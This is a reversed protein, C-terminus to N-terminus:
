NVQKKAWSIISSTILKRFEDVFIISSAVIISVFLASGSIPVTRLLASLMPLYTAGFQLFVSILFTAILLKNSKLSMKFISQTESRSNFINFLQFFVITMLAATRAYEVGLPLYQLYVWITGITMVVTVLLMRWLTSPKLLPEHPDRPPKKMLNEEEPEVTLAMSNVGDTVLNMWLIQAALLPLPLNAVVAYMIIAIEAFSTSVLFFIVKRLNEWILRGQKVAELIASFSDQLLVMDSAEIAVDTGGRGMSIGIDARKLAPADNVGDGTMAVIHGQKQLREVIHLKQSPTARAITSIDDIRRHALDDAHVVEGYQAIGARKAISEATKIHDGTIMLVRLGAQTAVKLTNAVDGRIPDTMMFYGVFTMNKAAKISPEASSPLDIYSLAMMRYGQGAYLDATEELKTRSLRNLSKTEGGGLMIRSSLDLIKEPSGKVILRNNRGYKHVSASFRVNEDFPIEMIEPHEKELDFAYWGAKAAVVALATENPDTLQKAHDNKLDTRSVTSSTALSALELLKSASKKHRISVKKDNVFFDGSLKYGDGDVRYESSGSFIKEVMLKGETITGTKDVCVITASGLTEAASLKRILAKKRFVRMLGVSLTVTIAVPLGEPVISVLLSLTVSILETVSFNYSIGVVFLLLLFIVTIILLYKAIRNVQRELNEPREHVGAVERTIKGIESGMGTATVVAVAQGGVVLTSSYVMNARDILATNLAVTSERKSSPLSEGTLTAQNTRLNRSQLIRADAPVKDGAELMIIDGAVLHKAPIKQESGERIVKAQPSLIQRLKAIVNEAKREQIYGIIANAIIVVTIVVVDTLERQYIAFADAVLLIYILPSNIQRWVMELKSPGPKSKLENSGGRRLRTKFEATSLGHAENTRLKSLVRQKPLSYFNDAM